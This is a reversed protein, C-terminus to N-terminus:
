DKLLDKVSIGSSASGQGLLDDMFANGTISKKGGGPKQGNMQQRAAEAQSKAQIKQGAAVLKKATEPAQQGKSAMYARAASKYQAIFTLKQATEPNKHKVELTMIDPNDALIRYFPTDELEEGDYEFKGPKGDAGVTPRMMEELAKGYPTARLESIAFNKAEAEKQQAIQQQVMPLVGLDREKFQGLRQEILQNVYRLAPDIHAQFRRAFTANEVAAIKAMGARQGEVTEANQYERWAAAYAGIADEPELLKAYYEATLGELNDGIGGLKGAPAKPAEAAAPKPSVAAPQAAAAEAEAAEEEALQREYATLTDTKAQLTKIHNQSDAIRKDQIQREKLIKVHKPNNIDLGFEDALAKLAAAEDTAPAATAETEAAPSDGDSVETETSATEEGREQPEVPDDKFITDMVDTGSDVPQAPAEITAPM